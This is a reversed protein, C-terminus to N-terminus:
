GELGEVLDKINDIKELSLIKDIIDAAKKDGLIPNCLDKFKDTIRIRKAELEPIEEM